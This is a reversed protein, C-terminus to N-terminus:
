GWSAGGATSRRKSRKSNAREGAPTNCYHTATTHQLLTNCYHTATTHQLLTNCYHSTRYLLTNCHHTATTSRQDIRIQGRTQLHTATSHHMVHRLLTICYYKANTEISSRHNKSDAREGAPTDCYHAAANHHLPTNCHHIALPTNCYQKKSKKLKASV